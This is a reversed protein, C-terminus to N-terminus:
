LIAEAIPNIKPADSISSAMALRRPWRSTAASAPDSDETRQMKDDTRHALRGFNCSGRKPARTQYKTARYMDPPDRFEERTAGRM